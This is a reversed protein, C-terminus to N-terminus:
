NVTAPRLKTDGPAPDGQLNTWMAVKEYKMGGSRLVVSEFVLV